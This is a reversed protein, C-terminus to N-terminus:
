RELTKWQTKIANWCAILRDRNLKDLKRGYKANNSEVKIYEKYCNRLGTLDLGTTPNILSNYIMQQRKTM